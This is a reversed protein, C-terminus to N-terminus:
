GEVQIGMSKASGEIIRVAHDVDYANLDAKKVSAIEELQARTVTGVFEKSPGGIDPRTTKATGGPLEPVVQHIMM